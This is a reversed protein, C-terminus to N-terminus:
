SGRRRGGGRSAGGRQGRQFNGRSRQSRFQDYNRTGQNRSGFDKDLQSRDFNQTRSRDRNQLQSRDFDQLRQQAGARAQDATVSDWGGSNNRKYVEGNRGMYLDGSASQVVGGVNQGDTARIGRAGGSSEWGRVTGQENSYRGSHVYNNGRGVVSEGFSENGQSYQRTM